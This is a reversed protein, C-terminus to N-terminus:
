WEFVGGHDSELFMLARELKAIHSATEPFQPEELSNPVGVIKEIQHVLSRLDEYRRQTLQSLEREMKSDFKGFPM